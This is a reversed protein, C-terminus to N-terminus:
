AANGQGAYELEIAIQDLDGRERFKRPVNELAFAESPFAEKYLRYARSEM